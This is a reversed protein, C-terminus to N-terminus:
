MTTENYHLSLLAAIDKRGVKDKQGCLVIARRTPKLVTKLAADRVHCARTMVWSGNSSSTIGAKGDRAPQPLDHFPWANSEHPPHLDTLRETSFLRFEPDDRQTKAADDFLWDSKSIRNDPNQIPRLM